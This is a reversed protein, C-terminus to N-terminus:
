KFGKMRKLKYMHIRFGCPGFKSGIHTILKLQSIIRYKLSKLITWSLPCTSTPQINVIEMTKSVQMVLASLKVQTVYNSSILQVIVKM